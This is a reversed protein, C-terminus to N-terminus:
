KNKHYTELLKLFFDLEVIALKGKSISNEEAPKKWFIAMPRSDPCSERITFWNPLNQTQKCQIALELENNLDAIDVKNNDLNKSEGAARCVGEYGIDKLLKVVEAEWLGGKVKSKKSQYSRFTTDNVWRAHIKDKKNSSGNRSKNARIKLAAVSVGCAKSAEELSPYITKNGDPTTIEISLDLERQKSM